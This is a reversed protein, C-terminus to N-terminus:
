PHVSIREGIQSPLSGERRLSKLVAFVLSRKQTFGPNYSDPWEFPVERAISALSPLRGREVLFARVKERYAKYKSITADIGNSIFGAGEMLEGHAPIVIDPALFKIEELSRLAKDLDAGPLNISLM